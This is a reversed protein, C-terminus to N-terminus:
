SFYESSYRRMLWYVFFSLLPLQIWPTLGVHLVPVLPMASTYFWKGAALAQKEVITVTVLGALIIFGLDWINKRRLWYFDWHIIALAFYIVLAYSADWLSARIWGWPFPPFTGVIYLPKQLLEWVFNLVWAIGFLRVAFGTKNTIRIHM